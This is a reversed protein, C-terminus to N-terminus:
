KKRRRKIEELVADNYKKENMEAFAKFVQPDEYQSKNEAWWRSWREADLGFDNGTMVMLVRESEGQVKPDADNLKQILPEIARPDKIEGLAEAANYRVQESSDELVVILAPVASPDKLRGLARAAEDRVYKVPDGLLQILGNVARSDGIIGLAEASAERLPWYEYEALADLLADVAAPDGIQGLAEAASDRVYSRPDSRLVEILPQVARRDKRKGLEEAARTRVGPKIDKLEAILAETSQMCGTLQLVILPIFVSILVFAATRHGTITTM